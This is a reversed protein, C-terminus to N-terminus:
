QIVLRKNVTQSNLKNTIKVLYVGTNLDSIDIRKKSSLKVLKGLISYFKVECNTHTVTIFRNAPNPYFNMSNHNVESTTLTSTNFSFLGHADSSNEESSIYYENANIPSIGEIQLSYNPPLIVNTKTVNGNSFLGSNFGNLEAIFAGSNDYGCLMISNNFANYTAGSILGQIPISDIISISYTGPTKSLEYINTNGDLWNKSFVYLKDDYHILGEADFNTALPSATFDTQNNYSFNIVEATVSTNAFFDSITIRYIKLNTRDGQYNGFDGIYIFTEDHAIDEWDINTANIITVTRTVMGTSTDIAYLQNSNASDNHTILTNNLYILGSSEHVTADLDTELILQQASVNCLVLLTFGIFRISKM